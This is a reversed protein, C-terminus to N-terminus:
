KIFKEALSNALGESDSLFFSFVTIVHALDATEADRLM